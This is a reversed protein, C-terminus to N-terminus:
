AQGDIKGCTDAGSWSFLNEHFKIDTVKIFIQSSVGFRTYFRVFFVDRVKRSSRPANVNNAVIRFTKYSSLLGLCVM